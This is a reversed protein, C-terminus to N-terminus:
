WISQLVRTEEERKKKKFHHHHNSKQSKVEQGVAGDSGVVM